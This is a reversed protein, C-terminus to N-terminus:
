SHLEKTHSEETHTRSLFLREVADYIRKTPEIRYAWREDSPPRVIAMSANAEFVVVQSDDDISFDIGGYDLGLEETINKLTEIIRPGLCSEMDQLFEADIKRHLDDEMEASFYHVKWNHGTAAHLPYIEGDIMMVRYKCFEGIINRTDLFEMVLFEEGPLQEIIEDLSEPEDMLIFHKGTHYGLSRILVPFHFGASEILKAGDELLLAKRSFGQMQATRVNPILRLRQAVESRRTAQVERPHNIVPTHSRRVIRQAAILCTPAIDADGIANILLEHPPLETVNSESEAVIKTIAFIKDSLLREFHVNGATSSVIMLTQIGNGLGRYPLTMLPHDHFGFRRHEAATATEGLQELAITLGRHAEVNSPELKISREYHLRALSPNDARLFMFGLNAHAKANQPHRAVSEQYLQFAEVRRDLNYMLRALNNLAPFNEPDLSLIYRYGAEAEEDNGCNELTMARELLIPIQDPEVALGAELSRLWTERDDTPSGDQM